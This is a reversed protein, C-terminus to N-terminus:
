MLKTKFCPRAPSWPPQRASAPRSKRCKGPPTPSPPELVVLFCPYLPNDDSFRAACTYPANPRSEKTGSSRTTTSSTMIRCFAARPDPECASGIRQQLLGTVCATGTRMIAPTIPRRPRRMTPRRVAHWRMVNAPRCRPNWSDPNIPATRTVQTTTNSHVFLRVCLAQCLYM